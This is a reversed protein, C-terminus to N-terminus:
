KGNNEKKLFRQITSGDVPPAKKLRLWEVMDSLSAGAMQLKNLEAAFPELKSRGWSARQRKEKVSAHVVALEAVADFQAAPKRLKKKARLDSRKLRPVAPASPGDRRSHGESAVPVAAASLQSTADFEFTKQMRWNQM